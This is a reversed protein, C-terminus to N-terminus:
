KKVDFTGGYNNIYASVADYATSINGDIDLKNYNCVLDQNKNFYDQMGKINEELASIKSERELTIGKLITVKKRLKKNAKTLHKNELNIEYIMGSLGFLITTFVAIIINRLVNVM